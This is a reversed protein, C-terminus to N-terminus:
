QSKVTIGYYKSYMPEEDLIFCLYAQLEGTQGNPDCKIKVVEPEGGRRQMRGEIPSSEEHSISFAQHSDATLGYFYAEITNMPPPIEIIFETDLQSSITAEFDADTASVAMKEVNWEAEKLVVRAAKDAPLEPGSAGYSAKVQELTMGGEEIEKIMGGEDDFQMVPRARVAMGTRPTAPLVLATATTALLMVSLSQM